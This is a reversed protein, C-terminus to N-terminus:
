EDFRLVGAQEDLRWYQGAEWNQTECVARIAEKLAAAPTEAEALARAVWHELRLMQQDRWAVTIDRAVGRYGRFAGKADFIPRGIVSRYRTDGQPTRQRLVLDSFPLHAALVARHREWSGDDGVPVAGLEWPKRGPARQPDIGVRELNAGTLLTLRHQDDQEWYWDSSLDILSRLREEAHRLAEGPDQQKRASKRRTAM